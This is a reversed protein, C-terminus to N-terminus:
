GFAQYIQPYEKILLLNLNLVNIYEDGAIWMTREINQDITSKLANSPIGTASSIRPIQSYAYQVTIDPDV